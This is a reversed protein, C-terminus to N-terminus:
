TLATRVTRWVPRGKFVWSQSLELRAITAAKLTSTHFKAYLLRVVKRTDKTISTPYIAASYAREPTQFHTYSFLAGNELIFLMETSRFITYNASTIESSVRISLPNQSKTTGLCAISWYSNFLFKKRGSSITGCYWLNHSCWICRNGRHSKSNRPSSKSAFQAAKSEICSGANQFHQQHWQQLRFWSASRRCCNVTFTTSPQHM